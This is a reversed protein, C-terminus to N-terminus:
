SLLCKSRPLFIIFLRSLRNFVLSMVKVVFTWRTLTITKGTTMYPDSLQVMFFALCQFISAKPTPSSEQSDRPTCPFWVLWDYLFDIRSIWQFSQHQLQLELVKALQHSSSVWQFLSISPFISFLLPRCLILHNSPMVLEVHTQALELLQHYVLLGPMSCDM